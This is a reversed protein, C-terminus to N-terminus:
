LRRAMMLAAPVGKGAVDGLTIAVKGGGLMVYDFFDGGVSQAAEYYHFFEYGAVQPRETPLFGLQIQTAFDLERELDRLTEAREFLMAKEVVGAAQCAVSILIEM